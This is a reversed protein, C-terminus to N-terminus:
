APSRAEPLLGAWRRRRRRPRGPGGAPVRGPGGHPRDPCPGALRRGVRRRTPPVGPGPGGTPLRDRDRRDRSVWGLSGLTRRATCASPWRWYPGAIAALPVWPLRWGRGIAGAYVTPLADGGGPRALEVRGDRGRRGGRPRSWLLGLGPGDVRCGWCWRGGGRGSWYARGCAMTMLISLAVKIPARGDPSAGTRRGRLTWSAARWSPRAVGASRGVQAARRGNQLGLHEEVARYPRHVPTRRLRGSGVGRDIGFGLSRM